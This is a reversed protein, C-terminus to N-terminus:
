DYYNFVGRKLTASGGVDTKVKKIELFRKLDICVKPITKIKEVSFSVNHLKKINLQQM